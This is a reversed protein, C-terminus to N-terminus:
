NNISNSNEQNIKNLTVTSKIPVNTGIRDKDGYFGFAKHSPFLFTVTEGENMLKLGQRLGTFLEERDIAYTRTPLEEESYIIRGDLTEINYDFEVVDGFEPTETATTDENQYYYWFGDPSSIYTNTSDEEIIHYIVEEEQAVLQKNREISQDIYSGTRQMVPRRAEPSKCSFVATAVFVLLTLKRM